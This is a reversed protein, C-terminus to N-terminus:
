RSSFPHASIPIMELGRLLGWCTSALEKNLNDIMQSILQSLTQAMSETTHESGEGEAKQILVRPFSLALLWIGVSGGDHVRGM